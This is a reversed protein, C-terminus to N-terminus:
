FEKHLAILTETRKVGSLKYLRGILQQLEYSGLPKVMLAFDYDGTVWVCSSIQPMNMFASLLEDGRKRVEMAVLIIASLGSEPGEAAPEEITYRLIRGTKKLRNVRAEVATRSRGVRKAITTLPIRADRRLEALILDDIVDTM